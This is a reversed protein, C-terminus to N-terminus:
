PKKALLAATAGTSAAEAGAQILGAVNQTSQNFKNVKVGSADISASDFTVQNNLFSNVYLTQTSVPTKGDAGYTTFTAESVLGLSLALCIIKM